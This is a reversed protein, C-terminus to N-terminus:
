TPKEQISQRKLVKSSHVALIVAIMISVADAAVHAYLLGDLMFAKNFLYLLPIYVIGQRLTSTLSAKAAQGVAQLYNTSLYFLGMLPATLILITVMTGGQAAVSVDHIFLGIMRNRLAYCIIGMGIGLTLTLRRMKQLIEAMRTTNGSGHCYAMLPGVGMCVGMQVMTIVMTVKSAAGMAALASTGYQVMLQNCFTSAFGSLVSSVANPLGLSVIRWLLPTNGKCLRINLTLYTTKRAKYWLLFCVGGLNGLVTAIAAGGVGLKLTLIFIPDLIVNLITSIFSAVVAVKVAGEGRVISGMTHSLIIIPAGLALVQLYIKTYEWMEENAGLFHLIPNCFLICVISFLIGALISAWVTLSSYVGVKEVEGHGLAQAILTCAGNGLMTGIAMLISFAPMVLSVAGVQAVDGTFGVFYMDAMNYFLMVLISILSPISLSKIASWVPKEFVEQHNM